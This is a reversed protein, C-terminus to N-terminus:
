VQGNIIDHHGHGTQVHCPHFFPLPYPRGGAIGIHTSGTDAVGVELLDGGHRQHLVAPAVGPHHHGGVLDPVQEARDMVPVGRGGVEPPGPGLGAGPARAVDHRVQPVGGPALGPGQARDLLDSVEQPGARRATQVVGGERAERQGPLPTQRPAGDGQVGLASLVPAGPGAVVVVPDTGLEEAVRVIVPAAVGVPRGDLSGRAAVVLHTDIALTDGGARPITLELTIFSRFFRM